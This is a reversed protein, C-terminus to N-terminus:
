ADMRETHTEKESEPLINEFREIYQLTTELEDRYRFNVEIRKGDYILINEILHVICERDLETINQYKMFGNTM